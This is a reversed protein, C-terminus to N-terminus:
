CIDHGFKTSMKLMNIQCLASEQDIFVLVRYRYKIKKNKKYSWKNNVIKGSYSLLYM